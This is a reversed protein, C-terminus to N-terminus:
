ATAAILSVVAEGRTRPRGDKSAELASVVVEFRRLIETTTATTYNEGSATSLGVIIYRRACRKVHEGCGIHRDNAGEQPCKDGFMRGAGEVFIM